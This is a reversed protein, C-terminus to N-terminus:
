GGTVPPFFAIEDGARVPTDAKAMDFNVAVRVARGPGLEAAWAGGRGCLWALLGAVNGIQPPLEVVESRMGLAERLRALYVLTIM